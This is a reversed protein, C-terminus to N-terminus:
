DEIPEWWVRTVVEERRSVMCAKTEDLDYDKYGIRLYNKEIMIYEDNLQLVTTTELGKHTEHDSEHDVVAGFDEILIEVIENDYPTAAKEILEKLLENNM